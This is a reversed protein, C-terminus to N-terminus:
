KAHGFNSNSFHHRRTWPPSLHPLTSCTVCDWCLPRINRGFSCSLSPANQCTNGTPTPFNVLPRIPGPEDCYIFYWFSNNKEKLYWTISCQHLKHWRNKCILSVKPTVSIGVEVTDQRMTGTRRRCTRVIIEGYVCANFKASRRTISFIGKSSHLKAVFTITSDRSCVVTSM